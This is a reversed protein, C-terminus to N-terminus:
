RTFNFEVRRNMQLDKEDETASLLMREGFGMVHIREANIGKDMMYKKVAEARRLSLRDNYRENGIHDTNGALEIEIDKHDTMIKVIMDIMPYSEEKIVYSDFDFIIGSSVEETRLRPVVTTGPRVEPEEPVEETEAVVKDKAFAILGMEIDLDYDYEVNRNELALTTEFSEYGEKESLLEFEYGSPVVIEYSGTTQDAITMGYTNEEPLIMVSIVSSVPRSTEKNLVNGRIAVLPTKKLFVPRLVRVLGYTSDANMRAFYAYDDLEDFYYYREDAETNIDTGVNEPTSWNNWSDDM